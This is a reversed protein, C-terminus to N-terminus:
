GSWDELEGDIVVRIEKDKTEELEAKKKEMEHKAKEIAIKEAELKTLINKALRQGKQVKDFAKALNEIDRSERDVEVLRGTFPEIKTLTEKEISVDILKQFKQWIRYHELNLDSEINSIKQITKQRTETTIKNHSEEKRKQWSERKARDQLTDFSVNYKEALKRYSTNSTEYENRIKIWNPKKKEAM